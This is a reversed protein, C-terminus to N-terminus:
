GKAAGAFQEIQQFVISPALGVDWLSRIFTAVRSLKGFDLYSFAQLIDFFVGPGSSVTPSQWSAAM